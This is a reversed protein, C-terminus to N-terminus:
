TNIFLNCYLKCIWNLKLSNSRIIIQPVHAGPLMDNKIKAAFLHRFFFVLAPARVGVRSFLKWIWIAFFIRPRAGCAKYFTRVHNGAMLRYVSAAGFARWEVSRASRESMTFFISRGLEVWNCDEVHIDFNQVRGADVSIQLNLHM